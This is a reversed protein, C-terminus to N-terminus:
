FSHQACFLLVLIQGIVLDSCLFLEEDNKYDHQLLNAASDNPLYLFEKEGGTNETRQSRQEEM